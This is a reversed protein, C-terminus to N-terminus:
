YHNIASAGPPNGRTTKREGGTMTSDSEDLMEEPSVACRDGTRGLGEAGKIEGLLPPDGRGAFAGRQLPWTGPKWARRCMHGQKVTM